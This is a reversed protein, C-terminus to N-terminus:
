NELRYGATVTAGTVTLKQTTGGGKDEVPVYYEILADVVVRDAVPVSLIGSIKTTGYNGAVEDDLDQTLDLQHVGIEFGLGVAGVDWLAQANIGFAAVSITEDPAYCCEDGTNDVDVYKLEVGFGGDFSHGRRGDHSMTRIALGTGSGKAQDGGLTLNALGLSIVTGGVQEAGFAPSASSL